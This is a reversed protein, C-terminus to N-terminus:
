AHQTAARTWIAKGSVYPAVMATLDPRADLFPIIADLSIRPARNQLAAYIRRCLVLDEPYDVTLRLDPRQWAAPVETVQVRFDDRHRRIYLSCRESREDPGGLRHSADLASAKYIEFHTGEPVGDTATVDNDHEVHQQWARELVVGTQIFPCETTVRFVDTAGVARGCDILRQLVDIPDGWVYKLNLSEAITAFPANETGEAIGLVIDSIPADTKLVRVIHELIAVRFEPDISHLPKGYLRSGGARCALAAVLRRESV